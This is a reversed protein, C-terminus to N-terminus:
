LGGSGRAYRQAAQQRLTGQAAEAEAKLGEQEARAQGEMEWKWRAAVPRCFPFVVAVTTYYVCCVM